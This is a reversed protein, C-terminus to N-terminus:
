VQACKLPLVMSDSDPTPLLHFLYMCASPAAPVFTQLYFNCPVTLCDQVTWGEARPPYFIVFM